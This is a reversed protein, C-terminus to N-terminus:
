STLLPISEYWDARSDSYSSLMAGLDLSMSDFIASREEPTLERTKLKELLWVVLKTKQDDPLNEVLRIVEDLASAM